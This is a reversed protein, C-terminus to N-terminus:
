ERHAKATEAERIPLRHNLSREHAEDIILTDYARLLPDTQTEALLIGDTMLKVSASKSLRDHFRVKYGVVEGLPTHLEEAIRSAVSSAAIRRPQTHGILQGREGHPANLRGRGMALAIKPLQTTKGSGTEGCVIIVQHERLAAEIEHRKGSVPLSEPFEIKLTAATLTRPLHASVPFALCAIIRPTHTRHRRRQMWWQGHGRDEVEGEHGPEARDRGVDVFEAVLRKHHADRAFGNRRALQGVQRLVQGEDLAHAHAHHQHVAKAGLHVLLQAGLPMLRPVVVADADGVLHRQVAGLLGGPLQAVLDLGREALAQGVGGHGAGRHAHDRAVEDRRARHANHVADVELMGAQHALHVHGADHARQVHAGHHQQRRETKRGGSLGEVQAHFFHGRADGNRQLGVLQQEHGLHGADAHVRVLGFAFVVGDVGFQRQGL